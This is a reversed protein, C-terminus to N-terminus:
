GDSARSPEPEREFVYRRSAPALLLVLGIFGFSSVIWGGGFVPFLVLVYANWAVLLWWITRNGTCAAVGIAAAGLINAWSQGSGIAYAACFGIAVTLGAYARLSLPAQKIATM